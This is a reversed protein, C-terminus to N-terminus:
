DDKHGCKCRPKGDPDIKFTGTVEVCRTTDGMQDEEEFTMTGSKGCM